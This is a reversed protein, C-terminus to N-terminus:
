AGVHSVGLQLADRDIRDLYALRRSRPLALIEAESWHYSCAIIHVQDLLGRAASTLEALVFAQVDFPTVIEASCANCQSGLQIDLGSVARELTELAEARRDSALIEEAWNHSQGTARELTVCIRDDRAQEILVLDSLRLARLPTGTISERQAPADKPLDDIGFIFAIGEGCEPCSLEARVRPGVVHRRLRLLTTEWTPLDPDDKPALLGIERALTALRAADSGGQSLFCMEQTGLIQDM